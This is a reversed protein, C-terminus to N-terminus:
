LVNQGNSPFAQRLNLAFSYQHTRADTKCQQLQLVTRLRHQVPAIRQVEAVIFAGAPTLPM